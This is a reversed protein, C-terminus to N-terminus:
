STVDGEPAGPVIWLAQEVSFSRDIGLGDLLSTVEEARVAEVAGHSDLLLRLHRALAERSEALLTAAVALRRHPTDRLEAAVREHTAYWPVGRRRALEHRFRGYDSEPSNAVVILRGTPLCQARLRAIVNGTGPIYCLVHSALVVDFRERPADDPWHGQLLRIRCHPASFAVPEQDMATYLGFVDCLRKALQGDPGTGIELCTSPRLKVVEKRIATAVELKETSFNTFERYADLDFDIAM